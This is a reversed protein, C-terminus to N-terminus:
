FLKYGQKKLMEVKREWKEKDDPSVGWIFGKAQMCSIILIDKETPAVKNMGVDYICKAKSTRVEEQSIGQKYWQEEPMPPYPHMACSTAMLIMLTMLVKKM